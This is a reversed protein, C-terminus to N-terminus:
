KIIELLEVEFTLNKGALPHNTDLTVIEDNYDIITARFFSGDVHPVKLQIGKEIKLGSPLASRKIEDRYEEHRPGFGDEFPVKIQKTEGAAMGVIGIEFGPVTQGNGLTLEFPERGRTSDFLTGDELTGTYHVKVRDGLQARSM